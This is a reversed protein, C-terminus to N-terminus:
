LLIQWKSENIFLFFDKSVQFPPKFKTNEDLVLRGYEVFLSLNALSDEIITEVINYVQISSFLTSLAFITSSMQYSLAANDVTGQTDMQLVHM